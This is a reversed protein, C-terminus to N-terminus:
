PASLIGDVSAIVATSSIVSVVGGERPISGIQSIHSPDHIDLVRMGGYGVSLLYPPFSQLDLASYDAQGLFVANEPNSIDWAQITPSPRASGIYLINGRRLSTRESDGQVHNVLDHLAHMEASQPHGTLNTRPCVFSKKEFEYRM